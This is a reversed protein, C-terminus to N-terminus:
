PLPLFLALGAQAVCPSGAKLCVLLDALLMLGEMLTKVVTLCFKLYFYCLPIFEDGGIWWLSYNIQDGRAEECHYPALVWYSDKGALVTHSCRM